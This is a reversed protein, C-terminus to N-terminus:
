DCGLVADYRVQIDSPVPRYQCGATLEPLRWGFEVHPNTGERCAGEGAYVFTRVLAEGGVWQRLETVNGKEDRSSEVPPVNPQIEWSESWGLESDTVHFTARAGPDEWTLPGALETGLGMGDCRGYPDSLSLAVSAADPRTPDDGEYSATWHVSVQSDATYAYSLEWGGVSCERRGAFDPEDPTFEYSELFGNDHFTWHSSDECFAQGQWASRLREDVYCYTTVDQGESSTIQVLEDDPGYQWLVGGEPIADQWPVRTDDASLSPIELEVDPPNPHRTMLVERGAGPEVGSCKTSECFSLEAQVVSHYAFHDCGSKGCRVWLRGLEDYTLVQVGEEASWSLERLLQGNAGYEYGWRREATGDDAYETIRCASQALDDQTGSLEVGEPWTAVDDLDAGSPWTPPLPASLAWPAPAEVLPASPPPPATADVVAGADFATSRGKSGADVTPVTAPSSPSTDVESSPPLTFPDLIQDPIPL